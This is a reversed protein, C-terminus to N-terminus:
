MNENTAQVIPMSLLSLFVQNSLPIPSPADESFFSLGIEKLIHRRDEPSKSLTPRHHQQTKNAVKDEMLHSVIVFDASQIM